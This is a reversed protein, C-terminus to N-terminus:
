LYMGRGDQPAEGPKVPAASQGQADDIAEIYKMGGFMQKLRDDWEDTTTAVINIAFELIDKDLQEALLTEDFWISNNEVDLAFRGFMLGFNLRALFIGLEPIVKIGVNTVAFVRVISRGGPLVRPAVTVQVDSIPLIFDEDKDRGPKEGKAQTILEEVQDRLAALKVKAEHAARHSGHVVDFAIDPKEDFIEQTIRRIMAFAAESDAVELVWPETSVDELPNEFGLERLAERHVEDLPPLTPTRGPIRLEIEQEMTRTVEIRHLPQGAPGVSIFDFAELSAIEGELFARVGAPDRM